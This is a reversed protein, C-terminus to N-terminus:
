LFDFFFSYPQVFFIPHLDYAVISLTARKAPGKRDQMNEIRAQMEKRFIPKKLECEDEQHIL